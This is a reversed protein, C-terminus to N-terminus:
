LIQLKEKRRQAPNNLQIYKAKAAKTHKNKKTKHESM